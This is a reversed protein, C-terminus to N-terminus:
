NLQQMIANFFGVSVAATNFWAEELLPDFLVTYSISKVCFYLSLSFSSRRNVVCTPKKNTQNRTTKICNRWHLEVCEDCLTSLEPLFYEGRRWPRLFKPFVGGVQNEEDECYDQSSYFTLFQFSQFSLKCECGGKIRLLKNVRWLDFLGPSAKQGKAGNRDVASQRAEEWSVALTKKKRGVEWGRGNCAKIDNGCPKLFHGLREACVWATRLIWAM